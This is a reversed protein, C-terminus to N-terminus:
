EKAAALRVDALNCVYRAFLLSSAIETLRRQRYRREFDLNLESMSAFSGAAMGM